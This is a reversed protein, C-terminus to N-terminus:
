PALRFIKWQNDNVFEYAIRDHLRNARGQWFEFYRPVLRYGGWYSPRQINEVDKYKEELATVKEEIINRGDIITSQPSALAGIRSGKPRSNFYEDSNQEDIKEAVGEIRVQRELKDWFFLLAAHPNSEMDNGKKSHYNTFFVFGRTDMGKLLVIRASPKNNYSTALTMANPELVESQLVDDFWLQFQVFPNKDIEGELLSHKQYDRRIHQM